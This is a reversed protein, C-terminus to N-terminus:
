QGKRPAGCSGCVKYDERVFTGCLATYGGYRVMEVDGQHGRKGAADAAGHLFRARPNCNGRAIGGSHRACYLSIEVFFPNCVGAPSRNRGLLLAQGPFVEAVGQNIEGFTNSVISLLSIVATAASSSRRGPAAKACAYTGVGTVTEVSFTLIFPFM